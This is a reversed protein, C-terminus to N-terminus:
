SETADVCWCFRKMYIEYQMKNTKVPLQSQIGQIRAACYTQICCSECDPNKPRCVDRGFDMLAQNFDGARDQPLLSESIQWLQNQADRRTVDEEIAALRSFLRITNGELIPLRQDLAISLIAGATYRGSAQCRWCMETIPPSSHETSEVVNPCRSATASSAPLLGVRGM